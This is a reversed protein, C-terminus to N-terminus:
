GAVGTRHFAFLDTQMLGALARLEGFALDPKLQPRSVDPV